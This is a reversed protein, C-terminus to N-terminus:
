AAEGSARDSSDTFRPTANRNATRPIAALLSREMSVVSPMRMPTEATIMRSDTPVPEVAATLFRM